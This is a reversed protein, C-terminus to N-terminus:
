LYRQATNSPHLLLVPPVPSLKVFRSMSGYNRLFRMIRSGGPRMMIFQVDQKQLYEDVIRQLRGAYVNVEIKVGRNRLALCAATLQAEASRRRNGVIEEASDRRTFAGPLGTQIALLRDTLEELGSRGLYVLFVVTMGPRAIDEVYPLFEEVRDHRRLPVLIQETIM